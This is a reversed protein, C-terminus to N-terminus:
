VKAPELKESKQPKKGRDAFRFDRLFIKEPLSIKEGLFEEVPSIICLFIVLLILITLPM